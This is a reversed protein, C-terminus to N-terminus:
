GTFNGGWQKIAYLDGQIPVLIIPLLKNDFGSVVSGIIDINM